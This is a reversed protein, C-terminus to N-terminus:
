SGNSAPTECAIVGNTIVDFLLAFVDSGDGPDTWTAVYDQGRFVEAAGTVNLKNPFAGSFITQAALDAGGTIRLTAPAGPQFDLAPAAAIVVQNNNPTFSRLVTGGGDVVELTGTDAVAIATRPDQNSTGAFLHCDGVQDTNAFVGALGNIPFDTI